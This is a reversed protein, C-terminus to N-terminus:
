KDDSMGERQRYVAECIDFEVKSDIDLFEISEKLEFLYPDNKKFDWPRNKNLMSSINFIHCCHVSEYIPLSDQTRIILDDDVNIPRNTGLNWFWNERKRVCHLSNIDSNVFFNAIDIITKPQLFPFCANVWMVYEEDYEELFHYIDAPLSADTASFYSREQVTIESEKALEWLTKDKENLAISINLFPNDMRQIEELLSLYIKYLTTDGFPRTMKNQMRTSKERATGMLLIRRM